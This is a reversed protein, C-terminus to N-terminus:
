FTKNFTVDIKPMNHCYTQLLFGQSINVKKMCKQVLLTLLSADNDM